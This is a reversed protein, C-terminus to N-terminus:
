SVQIKLSNIEESKLILDFNLLGRQILESLSLEIPEEEKSSSNSNDNLSLSEM